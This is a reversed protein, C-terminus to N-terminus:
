DDYCVFLNYSDLRNLASIENWSEFITPAFDKVNEYFLKKVGCPCFGYEETVWSEVDKWILDAHKNITDLFQQAYEKPPILGFKNLPHAVSGKSCDMEPIDEDMLFNGMTKWGFIFGIVRAKLINFYNGVCFNLASDVDPPYGPNDATFVVGACDEDSGEYYGHFYAEFDLGYNEEMYDEFCMPEESKPLTNWIENLKKPQM